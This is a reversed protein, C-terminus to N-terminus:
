PGGAGGGLNEAGAAGPFTTWASAACERPQPSGSAAALVAAQEPMCCAAHTPAPQSLVANGQQAPGQSQQALPPTHLVVAATDLLTRSLCQGVALTARVENRAQWIPLHAAWQPAVLATPVQGGHFPSKAGATIHNLGAVMLHIYAMM